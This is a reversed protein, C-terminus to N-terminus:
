SVSANAASVCCLFCDLPFRAREGGLEARSRKGVENSSCFSFYYVSTPVVVRAFRAVRPCSFHIHFSLCYLIFSGRRTSNASILFLLSAQARYHLLERASLLHSPASSRATRPSERCRKVALCRLRAPSYITRRPSEELPGRICDGAPAGKKALAHPRRPARVTRGAGGEPMSREFLDIRRWLGSSSLLGNSSLSCGAGTAATLSRGVAEGGGGGVLRWRVLTAGAQPAVARGIAAVCARARCRHRPQLAPGAPISRGMGPGHSSSAM